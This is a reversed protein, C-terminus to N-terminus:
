PREPAQKNQPRMLRPRHRWVQGHYGVIWAMASGRGQGTDTPATHRQMCPVAWSASPNTPRGANSVAIAARAARDRPFGM